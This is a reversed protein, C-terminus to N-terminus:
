YLFYKSTGDCFLQISSYSSQLVVSNQGDIKDANNATNITINNLNASGGVDKIVLIQGNHLANANQLQIGIPAATSNAAIVYDDISATGNTSMNRVNLTLTGAIQLVNNTYLLGASGSIANGGQMVQISGSPGAGDAPPLNTLGAASGYFVSASINASASVEGLVTLKPTELSGNFKISNEGVLHNSDSGITVLNDEYANAVIRPVGVIDSADGELTGSIVGVIKNTLTQGPLPGFYAPPVVSGSLKNYAM